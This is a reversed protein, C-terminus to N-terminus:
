APAGKAAILDDIRSCLNKLVFYMRHDQRRGGPGSGLPLKIGFAMFDRVRHRSDLSDIGDDIAHSDPTIKERRIDRRSIINAM